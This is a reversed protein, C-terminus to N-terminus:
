GVLPKVYEPLALVARHIDGNYFQRGSVGRQTLREDIDAAGVTRIDLTDSAVAFGWTAGYTPVHVFYPTVTAFQSKLNQTTSAVRDPHSFPSGLHLILAGGEALKARCNAFFEPAYLATAAGTPDTLDLYILDFPTKVAEIFRLGDGVIVSLRPDDFVGRHIGPLHQKSMDVVAQDLECLQCHELPHKLLEEAAGGDGGGIILARKPNPHATAAPHILSEHYFFEDRESTMNVDDIRMLRGLDPTEFIEILQYASQHSAILQTADFYVGSTQTLSENLRTSNM